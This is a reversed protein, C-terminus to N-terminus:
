PATETTGDDYQVVKRGDKTKGTRVVQRATKIKTDLASPAPTGASANADSPTPQDAFLTHLGKDGPQTPPPTPPASGGRTRISAGAPDNALIGLPDPDNNPDAMAALGARRSAEGGKFQIMAYNADLYRPDNGINKKQFNLFDEYKTPDVQMVGNKDPTGFGGLVQERSLAKGTKATGGQDTIEKTRARALDALASHEGAAAGASGAQARKESIDAAGVATPTFTNQDPTVKPDYSVGGEVKTLDAPKGEYVQLLLNITNRDPNKGTARTYADALIKAKQNNAGAQAFENPNLGAEAMDALNLSDPDGKQRMRQAFNAKAVEKQQRERAQAMADGARAGMLQGQAQMQAARPNNGGGLAMGALGAGRNGQLPAERERMLSNFDDAM